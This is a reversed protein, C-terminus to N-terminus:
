QPADLVLKLGVEGAEVTYRELDIRKPSADDNWSVYRLRWGDQTTVSDQAKSAVFRSGDSRKGQGQLWQHLGAIPLPWGLTQAVLADVDNATKVPQGSQMLQASGDRVQIQALTQGLPSRLTIDIQKGRQHWEFNGHMAEDKGQVQYRVSLRGQLDLDNRYRYAGAATSGAGGNQVQSATREPEPQLQACGALMLASTLALCARELWRM